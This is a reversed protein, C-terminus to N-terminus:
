NLTNPKDISDFAIQGPMCNTLCELTRSLAIDIGRKNWHTDTGYYLIEDSSVYDEYLRIVPVGRKELGAYIKPLLNNYKDDNILKHYITYKCPMPFFIMDLNYQDKLKNRLDAINNCYNEIEEDSHHYYFSTRDHNVEEFYFLWPVDQDLSYVPTTKSIYGFKDFKLTAIFSYIKHTLYSRSLLLSYRIEGDKLFTKDRLTALAKRLPGRTDPKYTNEHPRSFREPIYREATEYILVKSGGKIYNHEALTNLPYDYRAFFVRRNLTDGLREPFTKLRAFDFFSDGFTLLDAEKLDPHKETYRYKTGSPPLEERFHAISNFNYLEGYTTNEWYESVVKEKVLLNFFSPYRVAVFCCLAAFGTIYLLIRLVKDRM